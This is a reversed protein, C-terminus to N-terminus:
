HGNGEQLDLNILQSHIGFSLKIKKSHAVKISGECLKKKINQYEKFM